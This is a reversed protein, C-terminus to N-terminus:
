TRPTWNGAVATPSVCASSGSGGTTRAAVAKATVVRDIVIEDRYTMAGVKWYGENPQPFFTLGEFRDLLRRQLDQFKAPEVPTGDNYYPPVYIDYERM